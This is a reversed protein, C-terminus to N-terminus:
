RDRSVAFQVLRDIPDHRVGAAHLARTAADAAATARARAGDVGMLAAYTAKRQVHDRGASKGLIGADGTVDLIDDTVQFALGIAQGCDGMATVIPEPAGALRAGIRMAARFLAGTKRTHIAELQGADVDRGEAELDLLQGGVMGAAGAARTLESVVEIRHTADLELVAAAEDLVACALPIMAAGAVAADRTGFVRHATPRGRRIEDDDMCPLDDHVLSYTHVLEIACAADYVAAAVPAGRVASMAAVCLIPRLRKGGSEVAYRIPSAIRPDVGRLRLEVVHRLAAEIADRDRALIADVPDHLAPRTM